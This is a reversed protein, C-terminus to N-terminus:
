SWAELAAMLRRDHRELYDRMLTQAQQGQGAALAAFIAEYVQVYDDMPPLGGAMARAIELYIGAVRNLVWLAPLMGAAGVLARMMEFDAKTFAEPRQRTEWAAHLAQRAEDLGKDDVRGAMLLVVGELLTRRLSMLDGVLRIWGGPARGPSYKLYAPLVEISWRSEDLIQVGSGRKAEVLCWSELRRLAERVTTRSAGLDQALTREAPLRAGAGYRGGVIDKLLIEFVAETTNNQGPTSKPQAQNM